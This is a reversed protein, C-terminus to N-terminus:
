LSAEIRRPTVIGHNGLQMLPRAQAFMVIVILEFTESIVAAVISELDMAYCRTQIEAAEAERLYSM